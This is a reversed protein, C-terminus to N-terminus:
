DQQNLQTNIEAIIEPIVKEPTDKVRCGAAHVHGGGGFKKAVRNVDVKGKSRFSIKTLTPEAHRVYLGVEVDKVALSYNALEDIDLNEAKKMVDYPLYILCVKGDLYTEMNALGYGVVKLAELSNSFFLHAAIINSSVGLSALHAAIEFDRASTNSFSFRGTDYMIGCMLQNALHFDMQLASRAVLEYVLQCTSSAGVDVLSLSSFVDEEPHHDIKITKEPEPLLKAPNGIRARSPVDVVIAADFHENLLEDSYSVIEEWGQLFKYKEDKQQDHFVVQYNKGNMKLFYAIALAAGYADGDASLHATVLFNDNGEIFKLIGACCSELETM